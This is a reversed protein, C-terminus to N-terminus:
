EHYRKETRLPDQQFEAHYNKEEEKISKRIFITDKILLVSMWIQCCVTFVLLVAKTVANLM